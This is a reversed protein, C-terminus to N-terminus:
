TDSPMALRKRMHVAYRGRMLQRGTERYGVSQYLAINEVMKENTYLRIWAYSQRRAETEAFALLHRGIGRGQRGPAVAINEILLATDEPVLELVAALGNGDEAIWMQHRAVGAAYDAIMPAPPRGIRPVYKAYADLVLAKIAPADAATARRLAVSTM